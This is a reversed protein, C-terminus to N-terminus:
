LNHRRAQEENDWVVFYGGKPLSEYSETGQGGALGGLSHISYVLQWLNNLKVYTLGVADECLSRVRNANPFIWWVYPYEIEDSVDGALFEELLERLTMDEKSSVVRKAINLGHPNAWGDHVSVNSLMKVPYIPNSAGKVWPSAKKFRSPLRLKYDGESMSSSNLFRKWKKIAKPSMDKRM